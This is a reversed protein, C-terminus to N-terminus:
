LMPRPSIYCELRFKKLEQPADKIGPLTLHVRYERNRKFKLRSEIFWKYGRGAYGGSRFPKENHWYIVKGTKVDEVVLSFAEEFAEKATKGAIETGLVEDKNKSDIDPFRFIISYRSSTKRIKMSFTLKQVEETIGVWEALPFARLKIPAENIRQLEEESIDYGGFGWLKMVVSLFVMTFFMSLKM